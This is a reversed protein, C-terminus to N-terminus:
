RRSHARHAAPVDRSRAGLWGHELAAQRRYGLHPKSFYRGRGLFKARDTEFQLEGITEADAVLVHAVWVATEDDSRKRRTAILAGIDAAFETEVFLNAFAPHAVDAAQSTLSLEAFSTVQIDRARVGM